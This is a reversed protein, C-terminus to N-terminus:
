NQSFRHKMFFSDEHFVSLFRSSRKHQCTQAAKFYEAGNNEKMRDEEMVKANGPGKVSHAKNQPAHRRRGNKRTGGKRTKEDMGRILSRSKSMPIKVPGCM